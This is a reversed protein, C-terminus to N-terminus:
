PSLGKYEKRNEAKVDVQKSYKMSLQDSRGLIWSRMMVGITPDIKPSSTNRAVWSIRFSPRVVPSFTMRVTMLGIYTM